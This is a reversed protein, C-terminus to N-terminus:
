PLSKWASHGGFKGESSNFWLLALVVDDFLETNFRSTSM